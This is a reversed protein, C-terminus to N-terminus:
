PPGPPMGWLMFPFPNALLILPAAVMVTLLHQLMHMFFLQGGLADIPSMLATTLIIMGSIYSVLRPISALRANTGRRKRLRWWGTIYLVVLPILIILIEFRWEWPSFLAQLLPHM